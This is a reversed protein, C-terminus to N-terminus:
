LAGGGRIIRRRPQKPKAAHLQRGRQVWGVAEAVPVCARVVALSDCNPALEDVLEALDNCSPPDVFRQNLWAVGAFFALEAPSGKVGREEDTVGCM